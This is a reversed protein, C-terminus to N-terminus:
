KNTKKAKTTKNATKTEEKVEQVEEQKKVEVPAEEKVEAKEVVEEDKVATKNDIGAIANIHITMTTPNKANGTIITVVQGDTTNEISEVVGYVGSHTIVKLGKKIQKNLEQRAAVEKKSRLFAPVLMVILVAILVLIMWNASLWEKIGLLFNM